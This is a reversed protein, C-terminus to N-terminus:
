SSSFSSSVTCFAHRCNKANVISDVVGCIYILDILTVRRKQAKVKVLVDRYVHLCTILQLPIVKRSQSNNASSVIDFFQVISKSIVLTLTSSVPKDPIASLYLWLMFTAVHFLYKSRNAGRIYRAYVSFISVFVNEVIYSRCSFAVHFLYKYKHIRHISYTSCIPVFVKEVHCNTNFILAILFVQPHQKLEAM